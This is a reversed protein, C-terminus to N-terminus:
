LVHRHLNVLLFLSVTLTKWFHCNRHKVGDITVSNASASKSNNRHQPSFFSLHFRLWHGQDTTQAKQLVRLTILAEQLKASIFITKTSNKPLASSWGTMIIHTM